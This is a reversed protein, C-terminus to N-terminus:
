VLLCLISKRSHTTIYTFTNNQRIYKFICIQLQFMKQFVVICNKCCFMCKKLIFAFRNSNVMILKFLFVFCHQLAVISYNENCHIVMFINDIFCAWLNSLLFFLRFTLMVLISNNKCVLFM